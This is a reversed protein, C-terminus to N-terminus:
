KQYARSQGPLIVADFAFLLTDCATIGERKASWLVQPSSPWKCEIERTPDPNETNLQLRVTFFFFFFILYVVKM